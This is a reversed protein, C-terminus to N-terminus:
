LLSRYFSAPLFSSLQVLAAPIGPTPSVDGEGLLVEDTVPLSGSIRFRGDEVVACLDGGLETFGRRTLIWTTAFDEPLEDRIRAPSLGALAKDRRLPASVAVSGRLASRTVSFSLAADTGGLHLAMCLLGSLASDFRARDASVFLDRASRSVAASAGLSALLERTDALFTRVARGLDFCVPVPIDDDRHSLATQKLLRCCSRYIAACVSEQDPVRRQLLNVASLILSIEGRSSPDAEARHPAATDDRVFQWLCLDDLPTLLATLWDGDSFVSFCQTGGASLDVGFVAGADAGPRAAPFRRRAARNVEVIRGARTLLAPAAIAGTIRSYVGDKKSATQFM